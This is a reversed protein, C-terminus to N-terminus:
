GTILEHQHQHAKKKARDFAFLAAGVVGAIMPEAPINIKIGGVQEGIRTVVAVNKAIGV